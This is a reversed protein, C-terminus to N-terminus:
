EIRNVSLLRFFPAQAQDGRQQRFVRGCKSRYEFLQIDNTQSRPLSIQALLLEDFSTRPDRHHRVNM